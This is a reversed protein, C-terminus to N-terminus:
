QNINIKIETYYFSNDTFADFVGKLQAYIGFTKDKVYSCGDIENKEGIWAPLRKKLRVVVEGQHVRDSSFNLSHTYGHTNAPSKSITLNYDGIIEYNENDFLFKDDLLLNSFDANVSFQVKKSINDKGLKTIESKPNDLSIKFNGTNDRVAYNVKQLGSIIAFKNEIATTDKKDEIVSKVFKDDPIEKCLNSIHEISGIIWIYYPRNEKIPIGVEKGRQKDFYFFLGDFKSSLQYVVIAANRNKKLFKDVDNAIGIQQNVLYERSDLAGGLSFVCESVLISITNQGTKQLITDIINSIETSRRNGGKAAFTTPELKQIFDEINPQQPIIVSNIYFLNLSNTIERRKIISLYHYVAQEFETVGKVYGDMSGSNEIYVNVTSKAVPEAIVSDSEIANGGNKRGSEGGCASLLLAALTLFLIKKMDKSKIILIRKANYTLGEMLGELYTAADKM